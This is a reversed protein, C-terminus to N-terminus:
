QPAAWYRGDPGCMAYITLRRVVQCALQKTPEAVGTVLDPEGPLVSTPHQCLAEYSRPELNNDPWEIWRCDKCLRFITV